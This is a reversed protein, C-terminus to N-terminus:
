RIKLGGAKALVLAFGDSTKSDRHVALQFREILLRQLMEMLEPDKAPGASPAEIDFPDSAIWKPGGSVQDDKVRWAIAVISKLTQNRMNLYGTRTNWHSSNDDAKSPKITAAEFSPPSPQAFCQTVHLLLGIAIPARM